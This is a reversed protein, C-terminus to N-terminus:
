GRGARARRCGRGRDCAYSMSVLNIEASFPCPFSVGWLPSGRTAVSRAARASADSRAAVAAAMRIVASAGAPASPQGVGSITDTAHNGGAAPLTEWGCFPSCCPPLDRLFIRLGCAQHPSSLLHIINVSLAHALAVVERPKYARVLPPPLPSRCCSPPPTTQLPQPWRAITLRYPFGVLAISTPKKSKAALLSTARHTQSSGEM